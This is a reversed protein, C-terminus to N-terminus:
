ADYKWDRPQFNSDLNISFVDRALQIIKEKNEDFLEDERKILVCNEYTIRTLRFGILMLVGEPTHRVCISRNFLRPFESSQVWVMMKDFEHIEREKVDFQYVPTWDSLEPRTENLQKDCRMVRFVQDDNGGESATIKMFGTTDRQIKNLTFELPYKFTLTCGVDCLYECKDIVTVVAVHAFWATYDKSTQRYHQCTVFKVKYGLEKLLWGFLQNLQICIGGRNQGVVHEYANKLDSDIFKGYMMDLNDFPVNILHSRHLERLNEVNVERIGEIKDCKIRKLYDNVNM